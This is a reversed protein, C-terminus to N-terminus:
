SFGSTRSTGSRLKDTIAKIQASLANLADNLATVEASSSGSLTLDYPPPDYVALDAYDNPYYGDDLTFRKCLFTGNADKFVRLKHVAPKNIFTPVIGNYSEDQSRLKLRMYSYSHSDSSGSVPIGNSGDDDFRLFIRDSGASKTNWNPGNSREETSTSNVKTIDGVLIITFSQGDKAGVLNIWDRRGQTEWTTGVFNASSTGVQVYFTDYKSLDFVVGRSNNRESTTNNGLLIDTVVKTGRGGLNAIKEANDDAKVKADNAVTVAARALANAAHNERNQSQVQRKANRGKRSTFGTM